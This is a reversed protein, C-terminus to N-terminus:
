TNSLYSQAKPGPSSQFWQLQREGLKICLRLEPGEPRSLIPVSDTVICKLGSIFYSQAKPGPSSQFWPSLGRSSLTCRTARPRRAQLPNSGLADLRKLRAEYYSQAKPGPSSQFLIMQDLVSTSSRLEPGEPRSLIPVRDEGNERDCPRTARPRRAQLPNSCYGSHHSRRIKSYSQAKPGPSSQFLSTLSNKTWVKQLEPGEPRSLIPVLYNLTVLRFVPGYSQAKPGPSSQFLSSYKIRQSAERLEPGEPRSLIPVTAESAHM